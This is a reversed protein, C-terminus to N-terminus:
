ADRGLLLRRLAWLSFLALALSAALNLGALTVGFLAWQPQDCSVPQQGLLRRKFEELSNAVGNGTCASPGAFWHHEVGVHYFALATGAIFALSALALAVASVDRRGAALAVAGLALVAYYPWREYLCLECPLLRGWLQSAWASGVVLASAAFLLLPLRRTDTM